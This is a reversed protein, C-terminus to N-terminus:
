FVSFSIRYTILYKFYIQTNAYLVVFQQHISKTVFYGYDLPYEYQYGFFDDVDIDIGKKGKLYYLCSCVRFQLM